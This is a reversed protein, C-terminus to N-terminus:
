IFLFSFFATALGLLSGGVVDSLWHEGLSIRSVLMLMLILFVLFNFLIKWIFKIKLKNILYVIITVMFAARLSHGSPYSYGPKVYSSPFIFDYSYRFFIFPPGPHRLFAKGFIEILHAGIFPIFILFSINKRRILVLFIILLSLIEFSGILSLASLYDDYKKPLHNQLKVTFDFDLQQFVEKKVLYSFVVFAFFFILSLFIYLFKKKM